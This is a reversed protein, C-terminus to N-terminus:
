QCLILKSCFGDSRSVQIKFSLNNKYRLPESVFPKFYELGLFHFVGFILFPWHNFYSCGGSIYSNRIKTYTDGRNKKKHETLILTKKKFIGDYIKEKVFSSGHFKFRPKRKSEQCTWYFRPILINQRFANGFLTFNYLIRDKTNICLNINVIFKYIVIFEAEALNKM